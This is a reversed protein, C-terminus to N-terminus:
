LTERWALSAAIRLAGTGGPAQATQARSDSIISAGEGFLLKQVALAYDAPGPISLYSKSNEHELLRAEARKVSQLVPTNGTEDKYVGAGLNIKQERPDKNFEDNLGLIPDAPAASITEFM